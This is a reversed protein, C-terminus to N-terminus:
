LVSIGPFMTTLPTNFILLSFFATLTGIVALFAPLSRFAPEAM